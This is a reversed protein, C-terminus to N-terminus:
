GLAHIYIGSPISEAGIGTQTILGLHLEYKERSLDRALLAVVHEAGGGGLHPILM